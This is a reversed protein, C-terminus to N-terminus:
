FFGKKWKTCIEQVFTCHLRRLKPLWLKSNCKYFIVWVKKILRFFSGFFGRNLLFIGGNSYECKWIYTMKVGVLLAKKRLFREGCNKNLKRFARAIRRLEPLWIKPKFKYFIIGVKKVLRVFTGIISSVFFAMIEFRRM